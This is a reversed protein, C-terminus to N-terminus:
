QNRRTAPPAPSQGAPPMTLAAYLADPEWMPLAPAYMDVLEAASRQDAAPSPQADIVAGGYVAALYHSLPAEATISDALGLAYLQLLTLNPQATEVVGIHSPDRAVTVQGLASVFDTAQQARDLPAPSALATRAAECMRADGTERARRLRWDALALQAVRTFRAADGAARVRISDRTKAGDSVVLAPRQAGPCNDLQAGIRAEEAALTEDALSLEYARAQAARQQDSQGSVVRTLESERYHWLAGDLNPESCGLLLCTM